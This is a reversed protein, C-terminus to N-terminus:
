MAGQRRATAVVSVLDDYSLAGPVFVTGVIMSPVRRIGLARARVLNVAVRHAVADDSMTLELRPWDLRLAAANERVVDMGPPRPDALLRARLTAYAGQDQAAFLAEAGLVSAAGLIPDDIPVYRIHGDTTLLRQLHPEMARCPPCRLDYFDVITLDGRPNGLVPDGPRVVRAADRLATHSQAEASGRFALTALGALCLRRRIQTSM